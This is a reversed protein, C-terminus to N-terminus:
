PESTECRRVRLAITPPRDVIADAAITASSHLDHAAAAAQELAGAVPDMNHLGVIPYNGRLADLLTTFGAAAEAVARLQAVDASPARTGGATPRDPGARMVPPEDVLSVRIGEEHTVVDDVGQGPSVSRWWPGSHYRAM